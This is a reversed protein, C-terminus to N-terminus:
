DNTLVIIPIMINSKQYRPYESKNETSLNVLTIIVISYILRLYHYVGTNNICERLHYKTYHRKKNNEVEFLMECNSIIFIVIFASVEFIYNVM